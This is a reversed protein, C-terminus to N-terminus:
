GNNLANLFNVIKNASIGYKEKGPILDDPYIPWETATVTCIMLLRERMIKIDDDDLSAILKILDTAEKPYVRRNPSNAPKNGDHLQDELGKPKRPGKPGRKAPSAPAAAEAGPLPLPIQKGQPAPKAPAAAKKEPAAKKAPAAKKPAATKKVPAVKIAPAAKKATEM